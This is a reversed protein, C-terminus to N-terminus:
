QSVKSCGESKDVIAVIRGERANFHGRHQCCVTVGGTAVASCGFAAVGGTQERHASARAFESIGEGARIGIYFSSFESILESKGFV